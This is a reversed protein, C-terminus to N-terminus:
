RRTAETLAREKPGGAISWAALRGGVKISWPSAGSDPVAVLRISEISKPVVLKLDVSYRSGWEYRLDNWSPEIQIPSGSIAHAPGDMAARQRPAGVLWWRVDLREGSTPHWPGFPDACCGTVFPEGVPEGADDLAQARLYTALREVVVLAGLPLDLRAVELSTAGNSAQVDRVRASETWHIAESSGSPRLLVDSTHTAFTQAAENTELVEAPQRYRAAHAAAGEGM